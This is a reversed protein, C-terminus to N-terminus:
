SEARIDHLEQKSQCTELAERHLRCSNLATGVDLLTEVVVLVQEVKMQALFLAPTGRRFSKVCLIACGLVEWRHLFLCRHHVWFGVIKENELFPQAFGSDCKDNPEVFGRANQKFHVWSGFCVYLLWDEVFVVHKWRQLRSPVPVVESNLLFHLSSGNVLQFSVFQNRFTSDIGLWDIVDCFRSIADFVLHISSDVSNHFGLTWDGRRRQDLASTQVLQPLTHKAFLVWGVLIHELLGKTMLKSVIYKSPLTNTIQM